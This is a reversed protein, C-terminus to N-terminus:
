GVNRVWNHVVLDPVRSFHRLNGSVLAARHALVISAIRLDPDALQTGAGELSARVRGYEEAASRDFDLVLVDALLTMAREFLALRESKHAGYALEGVTISTTAQEDVPTDALRALLVPSPRPRMLDSVADTDLVIM